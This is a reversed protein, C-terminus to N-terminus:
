VPPDAYVLGTATRLTRERKINRTKGELDIGFMKAGCQRKKMDSISNYGGLM